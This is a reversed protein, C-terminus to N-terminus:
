APNATLTAAAVPSGLVVTGAGIRGNKVDFTIVLAGFHNKAVVQNM